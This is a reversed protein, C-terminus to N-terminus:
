IECAPNIGGGRKVSFPFDPFDNYGAVVPALFVILDRCHTVGQNLSANRFFVDIRIIGTEACQIGHNACFLNKLYPFQDDNRLFEM